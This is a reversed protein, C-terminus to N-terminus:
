EGEPPEPLPMWHTVAGLEWETHHDEGCAVLHWKDGNLWGTCVQAEGEGNDKLYAIVDECYDNGSAGMPLRESVSIWKM